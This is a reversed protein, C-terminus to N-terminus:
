ARRRRLSSSKWPNFQEFCELLDPQTFRDLPAVANALVYANAPMQQSAVPQWSEGKGANRFVLDMVNQARSTLLLDASGTASRHRAATLWDGQIGDPLGDDEVAKWGSPLNLAVNVLGGPLRQSTAMNLDVEAYTAIDPRGDGDFDAVALARSTMDPNTQPITSSRTFDGKGDGYLVYTKSFHCAIAIDKNGDGDFDAVRM